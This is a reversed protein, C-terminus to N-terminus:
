AYGTLRAVFERREEADDPTRVLGANTFAAIQDYVPEPAVDSLYASIVTGRAGRAFEAEAGALARELTGRGVVRREGWFYYAIWQAGRVSNPNYHLSVYHGNYDADAALMAYRMSGQAAARRNEKDIETVPIAKVYNGM